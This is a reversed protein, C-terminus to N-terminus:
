LAPNPLFHLSLRELEAHFFYYFLGSFFAHRRSCRRRHHHQVQLPLSPPLSPRPPPPPSLSVKKQPSTSPYSAAEGPARLWPKNSTSIPCNSDTEKLKECSVAGGPAEGGRIPFLNPKKKKKKLEGMTKLHSGRGRRRRRRRRVPVRTRRRGTM